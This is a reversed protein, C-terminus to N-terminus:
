IPLQHCIPLNCILALELVVVTITLCVVLVPLMIPIFPDACLGGVYAHTHVYPIHLKHLHWGAYLIIHGGANCCLVFQTLLVKGLIM